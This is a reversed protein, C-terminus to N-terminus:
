GDCFAALIEGFYIRHYDGAKYNDDISKDVFGAPDMDQFYIKRCELILDAENYSPASVISSPKLTLGTKSLKDGDRGSISGLTGLDKRYQEPFACLTFSDSQEMYGLTHRQPRVVAQAFPMAWMCGISGWAVTMMNCDDITGATLLLWRNMWLDVVNESLKTIEIQNM